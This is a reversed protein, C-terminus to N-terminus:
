FHFRHNLWYPMAESTNELFNHNKSTRYQSLVNVFIVFIYRAFM